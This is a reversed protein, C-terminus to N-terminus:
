ASLPATPKKRIARFRQTQTNRNLMSGAFSSAPEVFLPRKGPVTPMGAEGNSKKGDKKKPKSPCENSQLRQLSLKPLSPMIRKRQPEPHFPNMRDGINANKRHPM